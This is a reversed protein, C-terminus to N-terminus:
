MDNITRKLFTMIGASIALLLFVVCISLTTNLMSRGRSVELNEWLVDEPEPAATVEIVKKIPIGDPRDRWAGGARTRRALPPPPPSCMWRLAATPPSGAAYVDGFRETLDKLKAPKSRLGLFELFQTWESRRFYEICKNRESAYRTLPPPSPFPTDRPRPPTALALTLARPTPSPPRCPTTLRSLM